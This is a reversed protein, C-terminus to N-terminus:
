TLFGLVPSKCSKCYGNTGQLALEALRLRYELSAIRRRAESLRRDLDYAGEMALRLEETRKILQEEMHVLDM